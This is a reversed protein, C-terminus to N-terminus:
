GEVKLQKVLSGCAGLGEVKLRSGKVGAKQTSYCAYYICGQRQSGNFVHHGVHAVQLFMSAGVIRAYVTTRLTVQHQAVPAKCQKVQRGGPMLWHDVPLPIYNCVISFNIVEM